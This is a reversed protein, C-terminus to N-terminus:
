MNTARSRYVKWIFRPIAAQRVIRKPQLLLRWLWELGIKRMWIPARKIKGGFSQYDFTGGEGILVGSVLLGALESLLKEQRPFGIGVLILQPKKAELDSILETKSNNIRYGDFTGVINILPLKSRIFTATKEITSGQPHGVLYITVNQGAAHELMKWTFDAGAFREPIVRTLSTPRFIIDSLTRVLRLVSRNEYSQYLAAWQMAVSDPLVLLSQNLIDRIYSNQSALDIFEVYPKTVYRAPQNSVAYDVIYEAASEMTIVDIKTGLIDVKPM